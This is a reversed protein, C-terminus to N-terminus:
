NLFRERLEKIESEDCDSPDKGTTVEAVYTSGDMVELQRAIENAKSQAREEADFLVVRVPIQALMNIQHQSVGIGLPCVAGPGIRMADMPGEVIIAANRIYDHGMLCKRHSRSEQHPEATLYRNPRDGIARTTWSVEVGQYTIPIFLRWAHKGGMAGIGRVNWLTHAQELDVHRSELYSTHCSLMHMELGSPPLYKGQVEEREPVTDLFGFKSAIEQYKVNSLKALVKVRNLRGCHWCTCNGTERHIALHADASGCFPCNLGM